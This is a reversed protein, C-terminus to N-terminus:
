VEGGLDLRMVIASAQAAGDRRYYSKREAVPYFGRWAYLARAPVNEMDVDLFLRRVGLAALGRLHTDLLTRGVGCRRREAAVAITLIEAEDLAIRSLVFGSLACDKIEIAGDSVVGRDLLLQEFDAEIWPHSFSAAHILACEACREAGISRYAPEPAKAFLSFM